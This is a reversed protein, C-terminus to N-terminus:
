DSCDDLENYVVGPRIVVIEARLLLYNCLTGRGFRTLTPGRLSNSVAASYSQSLSQSSAGWVDLAVGLLEFPFVGELLRTENMEHHCLTQRSSLTKLLRFSRFHRRHSPHPESFLGSWWTVRLTSYTM